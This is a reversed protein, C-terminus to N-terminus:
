VSGTIVTYQVGGASLSQGASNATNKPDIAYAANVIQAFRIAQNVDM